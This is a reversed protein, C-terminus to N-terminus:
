DGTGLGARLQPRSSGVPDRRARDLFLDARCGCVRDGCKSSGEIWLEGGLSRVARRAIALGAGTGQTSRGEHLRTFLGFCEDQLHEPIGIGNDEVRIVGITAETWGEISVVPQDSDNYKFGNTILNELIQRIREPPAEVTPLSGGVLIRANPHLEARRDEAITTVLAGVEVKTVDERSPARVRSLVLLDKLLAILREASGHITELHVRGDDGVRDAHDEILIQSLGEIVRLPAAMGHSVSYAFAELEDNAERLKQSSEELRDAFMELDLTKLRERERKSPM